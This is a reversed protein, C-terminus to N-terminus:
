EPLEIGMEDLKALIAAKIEKTSKGAEQLTTTYNSMEQNQEETLFPEYDIAEGVESDDDPEPQEKGKKPAGKAGIFTLCAKKAIANRVVVSDNVTVIVGKKGQKKAKEVASKSVDILPDGSEPTTVLCFDTVLIEIMNSKKIKM